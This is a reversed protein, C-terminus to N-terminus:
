RLARTWAKMASGSIAGGIAVRGRGLRQMVGENAAQEIVDNRQEAGAIQHAAVIRLDIAVQQQGAREQVVDALNVFEGVLARKGVGGAALQEAVHDDLQLHQLRFEGQERVKGVLELGQDLVQDDAMVALVFESRGLQGHKGFRQHQM